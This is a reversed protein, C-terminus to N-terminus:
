MMELHHGTLLFLLILGGVIIRYIGFVFFGRRTLFGIFLKITIVAVVFAVLNGILLISIQDPQITKYIKLLKWATAAALTPVALLFSFEAAARRTMKVSLGGIISAASRSTGPIFALCQALGIIGSQKLSLNEIQGSGMAELRTEQSAFWKDVFLLIIGGIIQTCAVVMVNDLLVDIQKKVALGIIAAPLFGILLKLYISKSIVFRRWYLVLVSLIAGFQVIITFDKTFQEGAIGMLSSAVIMQGTSSIPLFETLGEVVSLILADPTTV